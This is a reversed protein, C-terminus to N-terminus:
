KLSTKQFKPIPGTRATCVDIALLSIIIPLEAGDVGSTYKAPAEVLFSPYEEPTEHAATMPPANTVAASARMKSANPAPSPKDETEGHAFTPADPVVIALTAITHSMSVCTMADAM